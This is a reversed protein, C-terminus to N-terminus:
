PLGQQQYRESASGEGLELTTDFDIVEVGEAAESENANNLWLADFEEVTKLRLLWKAVGPMSLSRGQFQIRGFPTQDNIRVAATETGVTTAGETLGASASLNTLWVEGPIVMAIETLVAPWDVDGVMVASLAAQKAQVEQELEAYRQLSDIEAQLEQNRAEARVLEDEENSIQVGLLFWYALLVVVLVLGTAAILGVTQRQKRRALHSAPLLEIRRIM